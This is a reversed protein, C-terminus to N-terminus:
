KPEAGSVQIKGLRVHTLSLVAVNDRRKLDLDYVVTGVCAHQSTGGYQCEARCECRTSKV